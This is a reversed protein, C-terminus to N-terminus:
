SPPLPREEGDEDELQPAREELPPSVARESLAPESDARESQAAESQARSPVPSVIHEEEIARPVADTYVLVTYLANEASTQLTAAHRGIIEPLDAMQVPEAAGYVENGLAALAADVRLQGESGATLTVSPREKKTGYQMEYIHCLVQCFVSSIVTNAFIRLAENPIADEGDPGLRSGGDLALFTNFVMVFAFFKNADNAVALASKLLEKPSKQFLEKNTKWAADYELPAIPGSENGAALKVLPPTLINYGVLAGAWLLGIMAGKRVRDGPDLDSFGGGGTFDKSYSWATAPIFSLTFATAGAAYAGVKRWGTPDVGALQPVKMSRFTKLIETFGAYFAAGATSTV